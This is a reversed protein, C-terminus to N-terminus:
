ENKIGAGLERTGLYQLAAVPLTLLSAFLYGIYQDSAGIKGDICPSLGLTIGVAVLVAYVGITATHLFFRELPTVPLPASSRVGDWDVWLMRRLRSAIAAYAASMVLPVWAVGFMGKRAPDEDERGALFFMFAAATFFVVVLAGNAKSLREGNAAGIAAFAAWLTIAVFFPQPFLVGDTTRLYLGADILHFVWAVFLPLQGLFIWVAALRKASDKKEVVSLVLPAIWGILSGVLGVVFMEDLVTGSPM